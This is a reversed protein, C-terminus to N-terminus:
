PCAGPQDEELTDMLMVLQRHLRQINCLRSVSRYYADLHEVVSMGEANALLDTREGSLNATELELWYLSAQVIHESSNLQDPELQQSM